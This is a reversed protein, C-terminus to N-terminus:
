GSAFGPSAAGPRSGDFGAPGEGGSLQQLLRNEFGALGAAAIAERAIRVDEEDDFGLMGKRHPYRGMLAAEEVTYPFAWEERQPVVAIERALEARSYAAMERGQFFVQGSAPKLWGSLLHLLTSKGAGNPGIVGVFDGKRLTFDLDRLVFRSPEYGFSVGRLDFVTNNSM